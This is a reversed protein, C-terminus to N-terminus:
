AIVYLRRFPLLVRGDARVLLGNPYCFGTAVLRLPMGDRAYYVKGGRAVPDDDPGPDTFYVGGAGDVALDNPNRLRDPGNHSALTDLLRGAASFRYVGGKAAILHRGDPLIRHGNPEEIAAWPEPVGDKRWRVVQGLHLLSVYAAGASDFVIGESYGAVNAFKIPGVATEPPLGGQQLFM